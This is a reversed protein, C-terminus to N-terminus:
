PRVAAPWQRLSKAARRSGSSTAVPGAQALGTPPGRGADNHPAGARFM